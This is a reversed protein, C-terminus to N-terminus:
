VGCGVSFRLSCVRFGEVRLRWARCRSGDVRVQSFGRFCSGQGRVALGKAGVWM